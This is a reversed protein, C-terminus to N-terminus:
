LSKGNKSVKGKFMGNGRNTGGGLPLLGECLDSVAREFAMIACDDTGNKNVIVNITLEKDPAFDVMETFLAGSIAGGSFSDVSIHNIYKQLVDKEDLFVDSIIINGRVAENEDAKGFLSELAKTASDWNTQGSAPQEDAFVGMCANIYYATRHLLAGKVSSAPILVYAGDVLKGSDYGSEHKWVVKKERVPINDAVGYEDGFGSSFMFFDCPKLKIEYVDCGVNDANNEADAPNWGTWSGSENLQSPKDLYSKVEEISSMDIRATKVEVVEVQGYGKRTGGGLMFNNCCIASLVKSFKESEGSEVLVEMEFCFRTGAYVVENDFKGGREAVGNENIRVHQRVPLFEFKRLLEDSSAEPDIGDTVRSKSDLILADSVIIRSGLGGDKDLGFFGDKKEPDLISRVVGAISTGPIYPFGNPDRAFMSDSEIDDRGSGVALPSKAEIIIRALLRYRFLSPNHNRMKDSM